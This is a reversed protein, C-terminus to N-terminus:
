GCWASVLENQDLAPAAKLKCNVHGVYVFGIIDESDSMGLGQKVISSYAMEGTRWIAGLGMAYAATLINQVGAGVALQQEVVPVKPHDTTNAIAIIMLPARKPMNKTKQQRELTLEPNTALAASLFLEGLSEQATEGQITLYRWPRLWAHDPARFAAQFLTDIQDQTPGPGTLQPASVRQTIAELANMVIMGM